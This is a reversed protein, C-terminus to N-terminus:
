LVFRRVLRKQASSRGVLQGLRKPILGAQGLVSPYSGLLVTCTARGQDPELVGLSDEFGACSGDFDFGRLVDQFKRLVVSLLFFM